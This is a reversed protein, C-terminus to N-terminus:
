QYRLIPPEVGGSTKVAGSQGVAPALGHINSFQVTLTAPVCRHKSSPSAIHCRDVPAGRGPWRSACRWRQFHASPACRQRLGLLFRAYLGCRRRLVGRRVPPWARCRPSQGLEFEGVVDGGQRDRCPKENLLSRREGPSPFVWEGGGASVSRNRGDALSSSKGAGCGSVGFSPM